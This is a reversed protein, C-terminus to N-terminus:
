EDHRSEQGRKGRGQEDAPAIPLALGVRLRLRLGRRIRGGREVPRVPAAHQGIQRQLVGVPVFRAQCREHALREQEVQPGGPARRAQGLQRRHRLELRRARDIDDRNRLVQLGRVLDGPEELFAALAREVGPEIGVVRKGRLVLHLGQRGRDVVIRLAAFDPPDGAFM